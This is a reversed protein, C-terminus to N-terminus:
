GRDDFDAAQLTVARAFLEGQTLGEDIMDLADHELRVPDLQDAFEAAGPGAKVVTIQADTDLDVRSAALVLAVQPVGDGSATVQASKVAPVPVGNISVTPAEGPLALISVRAPPM